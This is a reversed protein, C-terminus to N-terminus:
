EFYDAVDTWEEEGDIELEEVTAENPGVRGISQMDHRLVAMRVVYLESNRVEAEEIRWLDGSVVAYNCESINSSAPYFRDLDPVHAVIHEQGDSLIFKAFRSFSNSGCHPNSAFNQHYVQLVPLAGNWVISGYGPLTQTIEYPQVSALTPAPQTPAPDHILTCRSYYTRSDINEPTPTAERPPIMIGHDVYETGEEVPSPSGILSSSTSSSPSSQEMTPGTSVVVQFSTPSSSNTSHLPDLVWSSFNSHLHNM